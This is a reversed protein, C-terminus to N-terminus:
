GPKDEAAFHCPKKSGVVDYHFFHRSEKVVSKANGQIVEIGSVHLLSANIPIHKGDTPQEPMLQIM